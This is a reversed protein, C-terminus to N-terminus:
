AVSTSKKLDTERSRQSASPNLLYQRYPSTVVRATSSRENGGHESHRREARM